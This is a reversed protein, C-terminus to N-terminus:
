PNIQFFNSAYDVLTFVHPLAIVPRRDLVTATTEGLIGNM